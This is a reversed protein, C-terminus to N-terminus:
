VDGDTENFIDPDREGIIIIIINNRIQDGRSKGSSGCVSPCEVGHTCKSDCVVVMSRGDYAKYVVNLTRDTADM